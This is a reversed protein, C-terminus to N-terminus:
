SQPISFGLKARADFYAESVAYGLLDRVQPITRLAAAAEPANTFVARKGGGARAVARVATELDNCMLLGARNATLSAAQRYAGLLEAGVDLRSGLDELQRRLRGPLFKSLRRHLGDVEAPDVGPPLNVSGAFRSVASLLLLISADDLRELLFHAGKVQELAKGLLFRQDKASVRRAFRGGVVIMPPKESEVYIEGDDPRGIWVDHPPAQLVHSLEDDLVRVPGQTKPGLRNEKRLDHRDLDSPFIRGIEPALAELVQRVAGREDPHLVWGAHEEATLAEDSSQAVLTKNEQFFVYEEPTHAQLFVLIEAAVFARDSAGLHEYMRHLERYSEVRFPDTRLLRRHVDIAQPFSEVRKSYLSALRELAEADAPNAELVYRLANIARHDDGLRREFVEAMRLHLPTADAREEAGLLNVYAGAAEVLEPWEERAEHIDCLKKLAPRYTGDLEVAKRLALIAREADRPGDLYLEALEFLARTKQHVEPEVEALRLQVNIASAWDEADRYLAALRHLSDVDTPDAQLAAQFSQVSKVLDKQHEQYIVGLSRFSERRVEPERTIALTQHFVDIAEDWAEVKILLPGLRVLASANEPDRELAARYAQIATDVEHLREEAIRGASILLQAKEEPDSLAEARGELLQHLGKFDERELFLSELRNFAGLHTPDRRLVKQYAEVANDVRELREQEIRGIEFLIESGRAPNATQEGEVALLELAGATDGQAERLRRCGRLAPLDHADIGLALEYLRLAEDPRGLREENLDAARVLLSARHFPSRAVSLAERQHLASLGEWNRAALYATELARLAVPHSPVAELAKRYHEAGSRPPDLQTEELHALRIHRAAFSRPDTEMQALRQGVEVARVGDQRSLSVRELVELVSRDSPNLKLAEELLEAAVEQNKLKDANVEAIHFLVSVRTDTDEARGLAIRLAAVLANWMGEKSYIRVLARAAAGADYGLKLARQYLDAAQDRRELREECLEAIEVFAQAQAQSPPMGEAETLLLRVLKEIRGTRKYLSSLARRAPVSDPAIKLLTEYADVAGELDSLRDERIQAIRFLLDVRHRPSRTGELEREHMELLADWRGRSAHIRGLSRLAPLYTPNLSLLQELVAVARDSDELGHALIEARRHMLALVEPQDGTAEAERELLRLLERQDGDQEAIRALTRIAGLHRPSFELLRKMAERAKDLDGLKEEALVGIRGLLFVKLDEDATLGIEDEHLQILERFANKRLFLQELRKRAPQYGKEISLLDRLASIAGDADGLQRDRLESLKFLRIVREQSDTEAGLELEYLEALEQSRHLAELLRGLAQQAPMYTPQASLAAREADAAGELDGLQELARGLRHLIAARETPTEAGDASRRLLAPIEDARGARRYLMEAERLLAPDDPVRELGRVFLRLAEDQREMRAGAVRSASLFFHAAAADDDAAEGSQELVRILSEAQGPQQYLRRLASLALPHSRDLKLADEYFELAQNPADLRDEALHGAAMLLPLRRHSASEVALARQYVALLASYDKDFLHLRELAAIALPEAPWAELAAEYSAKAGTLDRLENELLAGKEALLVAREEPNGANEIEYGLIQVVMSWNGVETFLRRSAHLIAPESPNLQFASQYASAASRPRGLKEEHIRGVELYLRAAEPTEGLAEAEAQYEALVAEWPEAKESELPAFPGEDHPAGPVPLSPLPISSVFTESRGDQRGRPGAPPITDDPPPATDDDTDVEPLDDELVPVPGIVTVPDSPTREAVPLAEFSSDHSELEGGSTGAPSALARSAPDDLPADSDDEDSALGLFDDLGDSPGPRPPTNRREEFWAAETPDDALTDPDSEGEDSEPLVEDAEVEELGEEELADPGTGGPEVGRPHLDSPERAAGSVVREHNHGRSM